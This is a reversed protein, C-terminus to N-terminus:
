WIRTERPIATGDSEVDFSFVFPTRRLASYVVPAFRLDHVRAIGGGGPRPEVEWVPAKFFSELRRGFATARAARAAPDEGWDRIVRREETTGRAINILFVRWTEGEKRVGRWRHPGLPEPFAYAFSPAPGPAAALMALAKQRACYSGLLYLAAVGLAARAAFVLKPRLAASLRVLHPAALIGTLVFDIIFTIALEPRVWSLPWLVQVGFSNILDFFLHGAVNVGVIAMLDRWPLDVNKRKYLWALGAIWLPVLFVSHGFSRRLLVAGPDMTLHVVGDLDPLNAAWASLTVARRGLKPRFFAEGIAVGLLTHTVPDM